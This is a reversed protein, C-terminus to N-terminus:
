HMCVGRFTLREQSWMGQWHEKELRKEQQSLREHKCDGTRQERRNRRVREATSSQGRQSWWLVTLDGTIGRRINGGLQGTLEQSVQMQDAGERRGLSM